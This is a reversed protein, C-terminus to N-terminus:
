DKECNNPMRCAYVVNKQEDMDVYVCKYQISELPVVLFEDSSARHLVQIHSVDAGSLKDTSITCVAPDSHKKLLNTIAVNVSKCKCSTRMDPHQECFLFLQIYFAVQFIKIEGNKQRSAITFSNRAHVRKYSRSHFIESGIRIRNFTIYHQPIHGLYQSVAEMEKVSLKRKGSGGVMFINDQLNFDNRDLTGKMAQYLLDEQSNPRLFQTRLQPLMQLLTVTEVIQFDVNQTGNFFNLVNGNANEFSFCSYAWLPGMQVVMEPLHLLQHVNCTMYRDGYLAAFVCCFHTLLAEAKSIDTLAISDQLLIFIANVFLLYHQFYDEKQLGRLVPLSFYLLWSRFESAKWYKLHDKISRPLRTISNPPKLNGLYKDVIMVSSSLSFPKGNHEPLFWLSMLLKTVGLLVGHMYDICTGNVLDYYSLCQLFSPGKIGRSIENKKIANDVDLLYQGHSRKPGAPSDELFPFIHCHGRESTKCTNGPQFCKCCGYKGNFQITNCVISRAPLDATGGIVAVKCTFTENEMTINVGEKELEQLSRVFPETYSIMTPKKPGFWLGGLIMNDPNTRKNFPLENIQFFLPWLSMNSSKFCPIGDTNWLLSLNRANELFGGSQSLAKYVEGDYIDEISDPHKKRRKFRYQTDAYFTPCAFFSKIQEIIPIEIFHSLSSDDLVKGCLKNPCYNRVLDEETVIINCLTCYKHIKLPRKIHHFWKKFSLISKMLRNESPCMLDLIKLLDGLAEGTLSYKLIFTIMLVMFSGLSLRSNSFLKENENSSDTDDQCVYNPNFMKFEEPSYNQNCNTEMQDSVDEATERMTELEDTQSNTELQDQGCEQYIEVKHSKPPNEVYIFNGANTEENIMADNTVRTLLTRRLNYFRRQLLFITEDTNLTSCAMTVYTGELELYYPELGVM